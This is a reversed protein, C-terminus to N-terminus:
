RNLQAARASVNASPVKNEVRLTGEFFYVGM